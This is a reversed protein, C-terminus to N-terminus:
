VYAGPESKVVPLDNVTVTLRQAKWMMGCYSYIFVDRAAGSSRQQTVLRPNRSETPIEVM